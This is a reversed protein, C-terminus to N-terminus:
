RLNDLADLIQTLVEVQEIPIRVLKGISGVGDDAPVTQSDWTLPDVQEALELLKESTAQYIAVRSTLNAIDISM